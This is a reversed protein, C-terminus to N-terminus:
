RSSRRVNSSSHRRNGRNYRRRDSNRGGSDRSRTQEGGTIVAMCSATWLLIASVLFYMLSIMWVMRQLLLETFVGGALYPLLYQGLLIVICALIYKGVKEREKQGTVLYVRGNIRYAIAAVILITVVPLLINYLLGTAYGVFQFLAGGACVAAAYPLYGRLWFSGGAGGNRKVPICLVAGSVSLAALEAGLLMLNGQAEKTVFLVISKIFFPLMTQLIAALFIWGSWRSSFVGKERKGVEKM